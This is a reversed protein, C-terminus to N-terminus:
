GPGWHELSLVLVTLELNMQLFQLYPIMLLPVTLM